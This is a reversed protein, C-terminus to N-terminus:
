PTNRHSLVIEGPEFNWEKQGENKLEQHRCWQERYLLKLIGKKWSVVEQLIDSSTVVLKVEFELTQAKPDLTLEISLPSIRGKSAFLLITEM